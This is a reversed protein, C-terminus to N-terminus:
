RIKKRYKRLNELMGKKVKRKLTLFRIDDNLM